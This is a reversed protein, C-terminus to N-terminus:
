HRTNDVVLRLHPVPMKQQRRRSALFVALDARAVHMTGRPGVVCFKLRGVAIWERVWSTSRASILAAQAVTVLDDPYESPFPKM